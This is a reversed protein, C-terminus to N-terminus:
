AMSGYNSIDSLRHRMDLAIGYRCNDEQGVLVAVAVQHYDNEMRSLTPPRTPQSCPLTHVLLQDGMGIEIEGRGASSGKVTKHRARATVETM